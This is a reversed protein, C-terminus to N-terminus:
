ARRPASEGRSGSAGPALREITVIATVVAMARVNMMGIALLVAMQGACAQVCHAGLRLGHRWSTALSARSVHTARPTERCYALHRTRWATRQLTGALVISAAVVLPMARVVAPQRVQVSAMAAGAPFVLLGVASWVGLYAVAMVATAPWSQVGAISRRYRWLTPVLSPLMMVAMMASWAGLFSAAAAPWSQGPAPLWMSAMAGGPMTMEHM